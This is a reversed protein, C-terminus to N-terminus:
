IGDRKDFRLAYKDGIVLVLYEIKLKDKFTDKVEEALKKTPSLFVSIYEGGLVGIALGIRRMACERAFDLAPELSEFPVFAAGEDSTVPTFGSLHLHVYERSQQIRRGSRLSTQRQNIM